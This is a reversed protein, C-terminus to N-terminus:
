GGHLAARETSAKCLPSAPWRARRAGAIVRFSFHRRGHGRVDARRGAVASPATAGSGPCSLRGALAHVIAELDDLAHAADARRVVIAVALLGQAVWTVTNM